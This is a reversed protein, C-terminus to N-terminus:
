PFDLCNHKDVFTALAALHAQCCEQALLAYLNKQLITGGTTSKEYSTRYHRSRHDARRPFYLQFSSMPTVSPFLDKKSVSCTLLQEHTRVPGELELMGHSDQSLLHSCRPLIQFDSLLHDLILTFCKKFYKVSTTTSRKPLIWRNLTQLLWNVFSDARSLLSM